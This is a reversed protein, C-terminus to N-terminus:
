FIVKFYHRKKKKLFHKKHKLQPIYNNFVKSVKRKRKVKKKKILEFEIWTASIYDLKQKLFSKVNVRVYYECLIDFEHCGTSM